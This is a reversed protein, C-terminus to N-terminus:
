PEIANQYAAMRVGINEKLNNWFFYLNYAHYSGEPMVSSRASYEAPDVDTVKLTGRTTDLYAGCLQPVETEELRNTVFVAGENLTRDAPTADTKWNLPNIALHREGKPTTLSDEVAPAEAEYSIVQMTATLGDAILFVGPHDPDKKAERPMYFQIGELTWPKPNFEQKLAPDLHDAFQYDEPMGNSFLKWQYGRAELECIIGKYMNKVAEPSFKNGNSKFIDPRIVGIGIVKAEPDKEIGYAENVWM